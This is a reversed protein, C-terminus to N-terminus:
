DILVFTIIDVSYLCCYICEPLQSLTPDKIILLFCVGM